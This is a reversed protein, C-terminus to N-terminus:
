LPPALLAKLRQVLKPKSSLQLGQEGSAEIVARVANGVAEETLGTGFTYEIDSPHVWWDDIDRDEIVRLVREAVMAPTSRERLFRRARAGLESRYSADLCLKDLATDLEAPHCYHTPLAMGPEIWRRFEPAAYGAVLTPKGFCAAEFAFGAAPVDSYLQDVVFDCRSLELMVESNPRGELQIFDIEVGRRRAREIAATIQASGKSTPASPAHVVRLARAPREGPQM